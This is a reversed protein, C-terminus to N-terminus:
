SNLEKWITNFYYRFNPAERRKLPSNYKEEFEVPIIEKIIAPRKSLILIRDSMSIAESLDHTVMITTKKEKHIIKFVEDNLNLRTQYDIASFPEDLILVEPNISLTRILAVKQRMGGSLQKPHHHRFEWLGYSHLLNEVNKLNDETINKKIKLGLIVNDWVTLWEFLNDKQFMYGIQPKAKSIYKNNILVNGSSPPLLGSIINLLTSKGCGSPGVISLFEGEEINFSIDVLASTENELTHYNMYINQIQLKSM